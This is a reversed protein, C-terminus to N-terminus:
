AGIEGLLWGTLDVEVKTSAHNERSVRQEIQSRVRRAFEAEEHYNEQTHDEAIKDLRRMTRGWQAVTLMM